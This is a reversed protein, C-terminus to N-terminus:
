EESSFDYPVPSKRLNPAKSLEVSPIPLHFNSSNVDFYRPSTDDEPIEVEWMRPDPIQDPYIRFTGRDQNSLMDYARQPDYYQLRTFEYWAQGEMAFELIRENFIDEWTISTKTSVGARERVMNYYTLAEAPDTELMAEAYILYVDSLRLIYTNIETGQQM